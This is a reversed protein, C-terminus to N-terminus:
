AAPASASTHACCDAVPRSRYKVFLRWAVLATLAVGAVHRWPESHMHAVDLLRLRMTDPFWALLGIMLGGSLLSVGGLGLVYLIMSRTGMSKRVALMTSVNSAPGALLFVVAAGAPFGKELLTAVIPTSSTACVYTPLSILLALIMASLEGAFLGGQQVVRFWDDPVFAVVASSIALGIVLLGALDDVLTVFGYHLSERLTPRAPEGQASASGCCSHGCSEPEIAEEEPGGFREVLTGVLAASVFASLTRYVTFFPGFFTYTLLASDVGIEPTSIMFSATAGRSAGARRLSLAVPIVSCSCLPLPVGAAAAKLISSFRRPRLHKAIM